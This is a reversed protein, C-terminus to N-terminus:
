AFRLFGWGERLGIMEDERDRTGAMVLILFNLFGFTSTGQAGTSLVHKQELSRM